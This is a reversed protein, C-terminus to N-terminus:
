EPRVVWLGEIGAFDRDRSVLAAGLAVATAAIWLDNEDLSLGKSQRDIKIRAYLDGAEKPIPVCLFASLFREGLEELRARRRGTPLRAIGFLIEGRVIPCTVVRDWEPLGMMWSEIRQDARM